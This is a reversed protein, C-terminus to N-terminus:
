KQLSASEAAPVNANPAYIRILVRRALRREEAKTPNPDVAQLDALLGQPIPEKGLGVIHIGRLPIGQRVLYREVSEARRRSLALNYETGGVRDTFGILEFAVRPTSRVQQVLTDLAAEDTKGLNSKNFAFTVDGKAVLSYTMAQDLTAISATVFAQNAAITSQNQQGLQNAQQALQNAQAAGANAQKAAAAVEAVQSDTSGLKEELRSIDTLEKDTQDNTKTELESVKSNVPAIQAAVYKKTACGSTALALVVPTLATIL